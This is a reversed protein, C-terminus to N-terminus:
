DRRLGKMITMARRRLRRGVHTRVTMMERGKLSWRVRTRVRMTAGAPATKFAGVNFADRVMRKDMVMVSTM